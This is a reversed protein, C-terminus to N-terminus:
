INLSFILIITVELILIESDRYFARALAIRQAEGGSILKNKEGVLTNLNDIKKDIMDDLSALNIAEKLKKNDIRSEDEYLIINNRITDDLLFVDQDLWAIKSHWMDLNEQIDVNDSIVSGSDPKILGTILSLITSKGSGSEGIIVISENKNIKLSLNKILSKNNKGYDFNVNQLEISNQFEIIKGNKSILNNKYISLDNYIINIVPSGFKLTQLSNSIRLFSPLLKYISISFLTLTFIIEELNYSKSQSIYYIYLLIAGIGAFELFHKPLEACFYNIVNINALRSNDSYNKNIFYNKKKYILIEKISNFSEILNKIIKTETEVRKEGWKKLYPKLFFYYALIILFFLIILSITEFPRIFVLSASILIIMLIDFFIQVPTELAIFRFNGVETNINRILKSSSNELFFNYNQEFYKKYLNNRLKVEFNFLFKNKIWFFIILIISKCVLLLIAISVFIKLIYSTNKGDFILNLYNNNDIFENFRAENIILNALALLSGINLIEFVSTFSIIFFMVILMKLDHSDLVSFAKRLYNM